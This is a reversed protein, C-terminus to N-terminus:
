DPLPRMEMPDERVDFRLTKGNSYEIRHIRGDFESRIDFQVKEYGERGGMSEEMDDMYNAPYYRVALAKRGALDGLLSEGDIGPPISLGCVELITPFLDEFRVVEDRIEGGRDGGPLRVVLPVWLLARHLSFKHDLLGHRGLNEGHDSTIILLTNDLWGAKEVGDILKGIEHDLTAIEADYLDPLVGQVGEPLPKLGLNHRLFDDPSLKKAADITEPPTGPAVFREEFEAPPLYLLHPEMNNIFLFFPADDTTVERLWALAEVHTPYATPLPLNEDQFMPIFKDFGQTLGHEPTIFSNNTFCGTHYGATQLREALTVTEDWLFMRNGHRLGHNDPLLGTFLSAHAPATWGSPTWANRFNIAGKAIEELRPTTPREYGNVSCREAGATDMIILIVNPAGPAAPPRDGPGDPGCAPLLLVLASLLLSARM